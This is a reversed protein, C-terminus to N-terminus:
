AVKEETKVEEGDKFRVGKIVKEILQHARLRRWHKQASAVLKFVM